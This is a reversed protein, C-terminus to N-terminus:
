PQIINMQVNDTEIIFSEPLASSFTYNDLTLMASSNEAFTRVLFSCHSSLKICLMITILQRHKRDNITYAM